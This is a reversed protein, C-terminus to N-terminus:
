NKKDVNLESKPTFGDTCFTKFINFVHNFYAKPAVATHAFLLRSNLTSSIKQMHADGLLIGVLVEKTGKPILIDGRQIKSLNKIGKRPNAKM